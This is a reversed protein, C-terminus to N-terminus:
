AAQRDGGTSVPTRPPRDNDLGPRGNTVADAIMGRNIGIDHLERDSYAHLERIAKNASKMTVLNRQDKEQQTVTGDWPWYGVGQVLESRDIGIDGLTKEDQQLLIRRAEVRGRKIMYNEYITGIAALQKFM